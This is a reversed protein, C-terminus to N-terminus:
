CVAAMELTSTHLDFDFDRLLQRDSTWETKTDFGEQPARGYVLRFNLVTHNHLRASGKRAFSCAQERDSTVTKTPQTHKCNKQCVLMCKKLRQAVCTCHM